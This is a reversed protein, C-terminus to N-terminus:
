QSCVFLIHTTNQHIKLNPPYTITEVLRFTERLLGHQTAISPYRAQYDCQLAESYTDVWLDSDDSCQNKIFATGGQALASRIVEYTRQEQELTLHTVVGFLLVVDFTTTPNFTDVSSQVFDFRSDDEFASSYELMLDVATLNGNDPCISRSLEGFGSGLDLLSDGQSIHSLLFQREFVFFEDMTWRTAGTAARRRWFNQVFDADFTM